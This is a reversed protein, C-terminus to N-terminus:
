NRITLFEVRFTATFPKQQRALLLRTAAASLPRRGPRASNAGTQKLSKLFAHANAYLAPYAETRQSAALDAAFGPQPFAWLNDELGAQRCAARWEAFSGEVPVAVHLAGGPTLARRWQALAARPDPLWHLMMSSLILDFGGVPLPQAADALLTGVGPFKRRLAALMAPASDLATIQAQPWRQLAAETVHGTGCGLDLIKTPAEASVGAVLAQAVDSQATSTADYTQAAADFAQVVPPLGAKFAM